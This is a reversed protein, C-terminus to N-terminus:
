ARAESVVTSAGDAAEVVLADCGDDGPDVRLTVGSPVSRTPTVTVPDADPSWGGFLFVDGTAPRLVASTASGDCDWDGVAVM